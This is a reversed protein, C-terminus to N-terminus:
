KVCQIGLNETLHKRSIVKTPKQITRYFLSVKAERNTVDRLTFDEMDFCVISDNQIISLINNDTFQTM